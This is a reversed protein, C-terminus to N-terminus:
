GFNKTDQVPNYKDFDEEMLARFSEDTLKIGQSKAKDILRFILNIREGPQSISASLGDVETKVIPVFLPKDMVDPIFIKIANLNVLTEKGRRTIKVPTKEVDLISNPSYKQKIFITQFNDVVDLINEDRFDETTLGKVYNKAATQTSDDLVIINDGAEYSSQAAQKDLGLQEIAIDLRKEEVQLRREARDEASREAKTMVDGRDVEVSITQNIEKKLIELAKDSDYSFEGTNIDYYITKDENKKSEDQTYNYGNQYLISLVQTEDGLLAEAVSDITATATKPDVKAGQITTITTGDDTQYKIVGKDEIAQKIKQKYNYALEKSSSLQGLQSVNVIENTPNGQEDTKVLILENTGPDVIATTNKFDLMDSALQLKFMAQGSLRNNPDNSTALKMYEDYNDNFNTSYLFFNETSSKLNARKTYYEQESIQGSKLKNILDLSAVSAQNAFSGVVNNLDTNYGQPKNILDKQLQNFETQIDDKRKQRDAQDAQIRDTFNKSIERWNIQVPDDDRVYGYGLAM